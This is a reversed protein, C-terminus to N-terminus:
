VFMCCRPLLRCHAPPLPLLLRPANELWCASATCDHPLPALGFQWCFAAGVGTGSWWWLGQAARAGRLWGLRGLEAGMGTGSWM